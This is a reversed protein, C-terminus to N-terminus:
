RGAVHFGIRSVEVNLRTDRPLYHLLDEAESRLLFYILNRKPRRVTVHSSCICNPNCCVNKHPLLRSMEPYEAHKFTEGAFDTFM